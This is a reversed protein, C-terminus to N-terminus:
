NVSQPGPHFGAEHCAAYQLVFSIVMHDALLPVSPSSVLTGSDGKLDHGGHNLCDVLGCRKTETM